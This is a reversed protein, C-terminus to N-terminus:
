LIRYGQYEQLYREQGWSEVRHALAVHCCRYKMASIRVHSRFKHRRIFSMVQLNLEGEVLMKKVLLGGMSHSVWVLPRQGVNAM